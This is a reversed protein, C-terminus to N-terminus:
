FIGKDLLISMLSSLLDIPLDEAEYKIAECIEAWDEKPICQENENDCNFFSLVGALWDVHEMTPEQEINDSNDIYKEYWFDALETAVTKLDTSERIFLNMVSKSARRGDYNGANDSRDYKIIRQVDAYFKQIDNM